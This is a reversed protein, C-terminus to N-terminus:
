ALTNLPKRAPACVFNMTVAVTSPMLALPMSACALALMSIQKVSSVGFGANCPLQRGPEQADDGRAL